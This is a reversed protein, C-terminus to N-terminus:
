VELISGYEDLACSQIFGHKFHSNHRDEMDHHFVKTINAVDWKREREGGKKQFHPFQM